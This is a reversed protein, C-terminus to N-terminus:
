LLRFDLVMVAVKLLPLITFLIWSPLVSRIPDHPWFSAGNQSPLSRATRRKM